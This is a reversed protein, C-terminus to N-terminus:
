SASNVHDGTRQLPRMVRLDCARVRGGTHVSPARTQPARRRTERGNGAPITGAHGGAAPEGPQDVRCELRAHDPAERADTGRQAPADLVPVLRGPQVPAYAEDRARAASEPERRAEREGAEPGREPQEHAIRRAALLGTAPDHRLRAVVVDAALEDVDRQAARHAVAGLAQERAALGHVHEHVVGAHQRASRRSVSSPTSSVNAVLTSPGCRSVRRRRSRRIALAGARTSKTDEPPM